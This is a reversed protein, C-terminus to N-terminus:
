ARQEACWARMAESQRARRAPTWIEPGPKGVGRVFRIRHRRAAQWVSRHCVGLLRATEAITRGDAAHRRYDPIRSTPM